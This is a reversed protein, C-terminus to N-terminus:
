TDVKKVVFYYEDDKTKREWPLQLQPSTKLASEHLENPQEVSSSPKRNYTENRQLTVAVQPITPAFTAIKPTKNLKCYLFVIGLTACGFFLIVGISAGIIEVVLSDNRLDCLTGDCSTTFSTCKPHNIIDGDFITCGSRFTGSIEVPDYSCNSIEM